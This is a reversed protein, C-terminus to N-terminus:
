TYLCKHSVAQDEPVSLKVFECAKKTLKSLNLQLAAHIVRFVNEKNLNRFLYATAFDQLPLMGFFDAAFLVDIAAQGFNSSKEGHYICYLVEHLAQFNTYFM